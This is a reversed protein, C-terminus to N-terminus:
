LPDLKEVKKIQDSKDEKKIAGTLHSYESSLYEVLCLVYYNVESLSCKITTNLTKWLSAYEVHGLSLALGWKKRVDRYTDNLWNTSDRSPQGYKKTLAEKLENYTGVFNESTIFNDDLKYVSGILKDEVFLYQLEFNKGLIQTKYKIMNETKEVPDMKEESALVEEQTMGWRTFRFDYNEAWSINWHTVISLISVLLFLQRFM